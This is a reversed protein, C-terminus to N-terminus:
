HRGCLSRCDGERGGSASSGLWRHLPLDTLITASRKETNDAGSGQAQGDVRNIVREVAILVSGHEVVSM